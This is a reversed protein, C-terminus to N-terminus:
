ARRLRKFMCEESVMSSELSQMCISASRSAIILSGKLMEREGEGLSQDNVLFVGEMVKTGYQGRCTQDQRLRLTLLDLEGFADKESDTVTDENICM